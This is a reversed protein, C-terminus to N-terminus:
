EFIKIQNPDNGYDLNYLERVKREAETYVEDFAEFISYETVVDTGLVDESHRHFIDKFLEEKTM